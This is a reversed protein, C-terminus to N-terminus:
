RAPRREDLESAEFSWIVQVAEECVMQLALWAEMTIRMTGAERRSITERSVELIKALETSSLGAALRCNKYDKANDNPPFKM